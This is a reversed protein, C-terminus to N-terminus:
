EDSSIPVTPRANSLSWTHSTERSVADAAPDRFEYCQHSYKGGGGEGSLPMPLSPLSPLDGDESARLMSRLARELVSGLLRKQM